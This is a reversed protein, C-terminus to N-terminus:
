EISLSDLYLSNLTKYNVDKPETFIKYVQLKTFKRKYVRLTVTGYKRPYISPDYIRITHGDETKLKVAERTYGGKAINSTYGIVEAKITKGTYELDDFLAISVSVAGILFTPLLAILLMKKSKWDLKYKPKM